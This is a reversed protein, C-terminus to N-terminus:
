DEDYEAVTELRCDGDFYVEVKVEETRFRQVWEIEAWRRHRLRLRVSVDDLEVVYMRRRERFGAWEKWGLELQAVPIPADLMWAQEGRGNEVIWREVIVVGRKIIEDEFGVVALGGKELIRRARVDALLARLNPYQLVPVRTM